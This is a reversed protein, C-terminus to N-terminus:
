EEPSDFYHCASSACAGMEIEPIVGEVSEEFLSDLRDDASIKDIELLETSM